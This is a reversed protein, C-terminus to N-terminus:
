LYKKNYKEIFSKKIEYSKCHTSGTQFHDVYLKYDIDLYNLKNYVITKYFICGTDLWLSISNDSLKSILAIDLHEKIANPDYYIINHKKLLCVNFFQIFPYFKTFQKNLLINETSLDTIHCVSAITAYNTNSIFDIPRILPADSDILIFNQDIVDIAKQINESHNYSGRFKVKYQQGLKDIVIKKQSSSLYNADNVNIIPLTTKSKAIGNIIEVNKINDNYLQFPQGDDKFADIIFIKAQPHFKLISNITLNTFDNTGANVTCFILNNNM